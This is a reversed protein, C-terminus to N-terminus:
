TSLHAPAQIRQWCSSDLWPQICCLCQSHTCRARRCCALLNFSHSVVYHIHSLMFLPLVVASSHMSVAKVCAVLAHACPETAACRVCGRVQSILTMSGLLVATAPHLLQLAQSAPYQQRLGVWHTLVVLMSCAMPLLRAVALFLAAAGASGADGALRLVALPMSQRDSKNQVVMGVVLLVALLSPLLVAAVLGFDGPHAAVAAWSSVSVFSRWKWWPTADCGTCM